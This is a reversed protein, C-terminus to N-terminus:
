ALLESVTVFEFGRDALARLILALADVTHQRTSAGRNAGPIGDHLCVIAGPEAQDIVHRAVLAADTEQWDAPDVSRLITRGCGAAASVRAVRWPDACYPPRVSVAAIGTVDRIREATRVLEDRLADDQLTEPNFHSFTHNGLEHGEAVARRLIDERGDIAVGLVFFTARAGVPQLLDLIAPTWESPGDDFTLAILPREPRNPGRSVPRQEVPRAARTLREILPRTRRLLHERIWWEGFASYFGALYTLDGHGKPRRRRLPRTWLRNVWWGTTSFLRSRMWRDGALAHKAIFAGQGRGYWWNVRALERGTRRARHYLVAEPIYHIAYGSKLLRYGLDNDDASAYRAGPGFREDFLGVEGFAARHAAWSNGNLPDRRLSGEFVESRESTALSLAIGGGVEPPGSLVRGTVVARDGRDVLAQVMLELWREEVLVDDDTVVLIEGRSARIGENRARGAGSTSSEVIRVVSHDDALRLVREDPPNTQDVVILEEPLRSGALISAVTDVVLAANGRTPIIVSVSTV